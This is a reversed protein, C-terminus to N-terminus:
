FFRDMSFSFTTTQCANPTVCMGRTSSKGTMGHSIVPKERLGSPNLRPLGAMSRGGSVTPFLANAFPHQALYSTKTDTQKSRTYWGTHPLSTPLRGAENTVFSHTAKVYHRRRRVGDVYRFLSDMTLVSADEIPFIYTQAGARRVVLHGNILRLLLSPGERAQIQFHSPRKDICTHGAQNNFGWAPGVEEEDM